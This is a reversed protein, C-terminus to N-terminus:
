GWKPKYPKGLAAKILKTAQETSEGTVPKAFAKRLKSYIRTKKRRKKLERLVEQKRIRKIKKKLREVKAVRKEMEEPPRKTSGAMMDERKIVRIKVEEVM